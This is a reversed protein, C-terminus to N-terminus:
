SCFLVVTIKVRIFFYILFFINFGLDIQQTPSKSWPICTEVQFSDKYTDIFYIILSGISLLFVLVVLIRGTMSQGSILEGAWDKAETMWGIQVQEEKANKVVEKTTGGPSGPAAPKYFDPAVQPVVEREPPQCCLHTIIRWLVVLLM